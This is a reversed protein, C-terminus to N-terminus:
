TKTCWETSHLFKIYTGKICNSHIVSIGWKSMMLACQVNMVYNSMDIASYFIWYCLLCDLASTSWWYCKNISCLFRYYELIMLTGENFDFSPDILYLLCCANLYVHRFKTHLVDKGDSITQHVYDTVLVVSCKETMCLLSLTLNLENSNRKIKNNREKKWHM